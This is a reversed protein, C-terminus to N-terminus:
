AVTSKGFVGEADELGISERVGDKRFVAPEVGIVCKAVELSSCGGGLM